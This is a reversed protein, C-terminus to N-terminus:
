VVPPSHYTSYDVALLSKLKSPVACLLPQPMHQGTDHQKDCAQLPLWDHLPCSSLKVAHM